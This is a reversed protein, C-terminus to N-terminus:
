RRSVGAVPDPCITKESILKAVTRRSISMGAEPVRRTSATSCRANLASTSTVPIRM